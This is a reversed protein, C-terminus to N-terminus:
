TPQAVPATWVPTGAAVVGRAPQAGEYFVVSQSGGGHSQGGSDVTAYGSPTANIAATLQAQTGSVAPLPMDYTYGYDGVGASHYVQCGTLLLISAGFLFLTKM